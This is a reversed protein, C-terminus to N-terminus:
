TPPLWGRREALIGAEFRSRAGLRSMLSSMMRRGTRVGIGLQRAAVEDTLGQGLLRLLEREQGTLGEEDRERDGDTGFPAARRWVEDHLAALASIIGPGSFQVAGAASSDPDVPLLAATGDFLVMRIPLVPATRVQGGSETLWQAYRFTDQDNRVSDQYLTRMTVGRDLLAEDLHRSAELQARPQAGGPHFSLLRDTCSHTLSELRDQIQEISTLEEYRDGDGGGTPSRSEMLELVAARGAAFEEQVRRVEAERRALLLQVGVDLGVPRLISSDAFKPRLLRLETLRDLAAHVEADPLGVHAGIEAVGWDPEDLMVRYVAESANDVGLASLM